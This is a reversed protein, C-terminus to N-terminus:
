GVDEFELYLGEALFQGQKLDLALHLYVVTMLAGCFRKLLSLTLPHEVDLYNKLRAIYRLIANLLYRQLNKIDAKFHVLGGLYEIRQVVNLLLLMM